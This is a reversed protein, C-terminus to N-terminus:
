KEQVLLAPRDSQRLPSLYLVPLSVGSPFGSGLANEVCVLGSPIWTPM